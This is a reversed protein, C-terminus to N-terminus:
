ENTGNKTFKSRLIGPLLAKSHYKGVVMGQNYSLGADMPQGNKSMYQVYCGHQDLVNDRIFKWGSWALDGGIAGGAVGAGAFALLPAAAGGTLFTAAIGGGVGVVTALGTTILAGAFGTTGNCEQLMKQKSKCEKEQKQCQM